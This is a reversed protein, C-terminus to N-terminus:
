KKAKKHVEKFVIDPYKYLLLKKKIAYEKTVYGKTDEVIIRDNSDRYVFDAKYVTKRITKGDRKFSPILEFPVQLQLDHIVEAQELLKLSKYRESEFKSDFKIGDVVVKQNKYKSTKTNSKENKEESSPTFDKVRIKGEKILQLVQEESMTM